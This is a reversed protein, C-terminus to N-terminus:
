IVSDKTIHKLSHVFSLNLFSQVKKYQRYSFSIRAKLRLYARKLQNMSEDGEKAHEKPIEKWETLLLSYYMISISSTTKFLNRKAVKIRKM